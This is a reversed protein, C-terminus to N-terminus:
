PKPRTRWKEAAARTASDPAPMMPLTRLAYDAPLVFKDLDIDVTKFGSMEVLNDTGMTTGAVTMRTTVLHRVPVKGKPLEAAAAAFQQLFAAMPGTAAIDAASGARTFPTPPINGADALWFETTQTTTIPPAGAMAAMTMDYRGAIRYHETSRGEIPEGALTDLKVSVNSLSMQFAGSALQGSMARAAAIGLVLYSKDSPRVVLMDGDAFLVYDGMQMVPGQSGEVIDIRGRGAASIATGRWDARQAQMAAAAPGEGVPTIKAHIGFEPGRVSQQASSGAALLASLAIPHALTLRM